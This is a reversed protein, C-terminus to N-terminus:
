GRSQRGLRTIFALVAEPTTCRGTSLWTELVIGHKGETAWRRLTSVSPLRGHRDKPFLTRADHLPRLQSLTLEASFQM